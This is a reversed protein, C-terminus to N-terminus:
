LWKRKSKGKMVVPICLHKLRDIVRGGYRDLLEDGRLNTTIFLRGKGKEYYRCIFEGVIDRKVGYENKISEAGVDDLIINKNCVDQVFSAYGGNADLWEVNEPITLNVLTCHLNLSNIFFSKGCGYDGTIILGVRRPKFTNFARVASNVLTNYDEGCVEQSFGNSSIIEVIDERKRYDYFRPSTMANTMPQKEITQQHQEKVPITQLEQMLGELASNTKM